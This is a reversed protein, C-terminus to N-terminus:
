RRGRETRRFLVGTVILAAGFLLTVFVGVGGLPLTGAVGLLYILGLAMAVIFILAPTNTVEKGVYIVIAAVLGAIGAVLAAITILVSPFAIGLGGIALIAWGIAAAILTIKAVTNNVAGFGLLGLAVAMAADALVVFWPFSVSVLPLLAALVFLAGAVILAIGAASRRSTSIRAM